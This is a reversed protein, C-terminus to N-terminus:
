RDREVTAIAAEIRDLRDGLTGDSDDFLYPNSGAADLLSKLDDLRVTVLKDTM